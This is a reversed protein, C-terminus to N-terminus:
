VVRKFMKEIEYISYHVIVPRGHPCTFPNKCKRLDSLLTEMEEKSLAKNAKLALKCSLTIALDERLKPVSVNGSSIVQEFTKEIIDKESGDRIWAPHAKVLITNIGFEEIEFGINTLLEKREMLLLYENLPYELTVPVLMQKKDKTVESLRALYYEYNIQEKAAHQDILYLGNENEALIYTGHLQGIPYLEPIRDPVELDSLLSEEQIFFPTEEVSEYQFKETIEENLERALLLSEQEYNPEIFIDEKIEPILTEKSLAEYVQRTLIEKLEEEKSFKVELKTPHVNVDVLTPDMKINLVVVPYRDHMIYTHYSDIITKSLAYNKVVRGNVIINIYNRNARTLEPYSIFGNIIFDDDSYEIPIMKKAVETGYIASIVKLLNNSGDTNLIVKDDNILTFSIEPHSLALKNVFDIINTLETNLSKMYKLRAPTNYFLNKVTIETGRRASSSSEEIIEGGKLTLSIGAEGTSTKLNVESVAAISPLAEGRFGLTMIRNLDMETFIKSTAHKLFARKADAEEMGVGNDVVKIEKSGAEKLEIKIITSRADISNEVLEKVVSAYREIVEGAAIKNILNSEMVKIKAM